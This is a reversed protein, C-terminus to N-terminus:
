EKDLIKTNIGLEECLECFEKADDETGVISGYHMPIALFPKIIKAAEVAEEASMTFRGGIPLLAIIKEQYGTLKQMEPIVDTDGAHYILNGNVGILYGVWAEDKSHFPKDINYAPLTTIKMDGQILEQGPEMVQMKIPIKFRAIKSQCDATMIIKTGEKIIKNIDAVSCHDYHSHTILILDAKESGGRINYPDIYIIKGKTSIESPSKDPGARLNKIGNEKTDHGGPTYAQPTLSKILFGSHGLWKIDLNGIEM